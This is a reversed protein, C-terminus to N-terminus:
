GGASQNSRLEARIHEDFGVADQRVFVAWEEEVKRLTEFANKSANKSQPSM